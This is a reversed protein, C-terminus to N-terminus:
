RRTCDTQTFENTTGFLVFIYPPVNKIMTILMVVYLTKVWKNAFKKIYEHVQIPTEAQFYGTKPMGTKECFPAPLGTVENTSANFDVERKLATGDEAAFCFIDGSDVEVGHM